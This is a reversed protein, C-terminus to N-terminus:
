TTAEFEADFSQAIMAQESIIKEDIVEVDVAGFNANPDALPLGRLYKKLRNAQPKFSFYTLGGAAVGGVVPITKGIAQAFTSKSIKYGLATVVKKVLPYVVGKTLAKNAITKEARVAASLAIKTIAKNATGVGFMIGIFLILFSYTEDDFDTKDLNIEPWGYLYILKQLMVVIHAFYQALDAPLTAFMMLGGPLGAALSTMSTVNTQFDICSKAIRDIVDVGIGAQAPTTEIAKAITEAPYLKSLEKKLFEDRNVHVGPLKLATRLIMDFSLNNAQLEDAM